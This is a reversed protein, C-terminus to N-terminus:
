AVVALTIDDTSAMAAENFKIVVDGSIFINANNLISRGAGAGAALTVAGTTFNVATLTTNLLSANDLVISVPQGIYLNSPDAVNVATVGAAYPGATITTIPTAVARSQTISLVDFTKSLTDLQAQTMPLGSNFAASAAIAATGNLNAASYLRGLYSFEGIDLSNLYQVLAAIILDGTTSVYGPLSRITIGLTMEVLGLVFFNIKSPIGRADIAIASTTGYTPTGPTKKVAIASAIANVDGGQAVIAISHAPIGNSDTAGTQNEYGTFRGIAPVNGVNALISDFPSQAPLATSISQRQRLTADDEVPNGPTAIAPNTVSQWGKTPTLMKTLSNEAAATAGLTTCTATVTITGANPIVVTESGPAGPFQWQTNLGLSDGVLLGSLDTGVEGVCDCDAQSNSPVDRELGNIKVNSSLGAGQATAPSYANYAAKATDNSDNLAEAVIALMQGDQSDDEIYIDTGYIGRAGDKFSELIDPYSPASIGAPSITVGLTM